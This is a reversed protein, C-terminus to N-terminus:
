QADTAEVTGDIVVSSDTPSNLTMSSTGKTVTATMSVIDASILPGIAGNTTISGSLSWGNQYEPYNVLQYTIDGGRAQGSGSAVLLTAVIALAFWNTTSRM